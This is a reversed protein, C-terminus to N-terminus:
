YLIGENCKSDTMNGISQQIIYDCLKSTGVWVYINTLLKEPDSSGPQPKLHLSGQPLIGKGAWTLTPLIWDKELNLHCWQHIIRVGKLILLLGKNVIRELFFVFLCLFLSCKGIHWMFGTKGLLVVPCLSKLFPFHCVFIGWSVSAFIRFSISDFYVLLRIFIYMILLSKDRFYTKNFVCFHNTYYM